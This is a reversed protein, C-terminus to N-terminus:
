PASTTQPTGDPAFTGELIARAGEMVYGGNRLVQRGRTELSFEGAWGQGDINQASLDLTAEGRSGSVETFLRVRDNGSMAQPLEREFIRAVALSVSVDDGLAARVTPSSEILAVTKEVPPASRAYGHQGFCTGLVLMFVGCGCLVPLAGMLAAFAGIKAVTKQQTEVM